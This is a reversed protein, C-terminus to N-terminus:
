VGRVLVGVDWHRGRSQGTTVDSASSMAEVTGGKGDSVAIHGYVGPQPVRLLFAGPTRIAEEVSIQKLGQAGKASAAAWYGTYSGATAPNAAPDQVGVLHGTTQYVLWTAFEACDWPGAWRSDSKPVSAGFVYAQGIRSRALELLKEAGSKLKASPRPERTQTSRNSAAGFALLAAGAGALIWLNQKKSM